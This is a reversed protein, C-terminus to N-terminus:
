FAGSHQIHTFFGDAIRSSFPAPNMSQAGQMVAYTIQDTCNLRDDLVLVKKIDASM